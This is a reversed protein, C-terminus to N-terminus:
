RPLAGRGVLVGGPGRLRSWGLGLARLPEVHVGNVRVSLRTSEGATGIRGGEVVGAGETVGDAIGALWGVTVVVRRGTSGSASASAPLISVFLHEAVTGAFTVVGSVPAVVVHGPESRITVARRGACRDCAPAVFRQVVPGPVPAVVSVVLAFLLGAPM